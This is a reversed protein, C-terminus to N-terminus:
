DTSVTDWRYNITTHKYPKLLFIHPKVLTLKTSSMHLSYTFKIMYKSQNNHINFDDFICLNPTYKAHMSVIEHITLKFSTADTFLKLRPVIKKVPNTESYYIFSVIGGDM